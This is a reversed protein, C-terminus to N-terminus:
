AAGQRPRVSNLSVVYAKKKREFIEEAFAELEAYAREMAQVRTEGPRVRTNTTFPGVHFTNFQVPQFTEEGWTVTVEEGVDDTIAGVAARRRRGVEEDRPMFPNPKELEKALSPFTKADVEVRPAALTPADRMAGRSAARLKARWEEPTIGLAGGHGSPCSEGGPSMFQPEGCDNCVTSLMQKIAGQANQEAM